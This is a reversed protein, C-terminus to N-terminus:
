ESFNESIANLLRQHPSGFAQPDEKCLNFYDDIALEEVSVKSRNNVRNLVSM